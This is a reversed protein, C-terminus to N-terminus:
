SQVTIVVKWFPYYPFTTIVTCDYGQEVLWNIMEGNYKGMGVLEPSFNHSILLVRKKNM